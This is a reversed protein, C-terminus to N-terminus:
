LMHVLFMTETEFHLTPVAKLYKDIPLIIIEPTLHRFGQVENELLCVGKFVRMERINLRATSHVLEGRPLRPVAKHDQRTCTARLASFHDPELALKLLMTCCVDMIKMEIPITAETSHDTTHHQQGTLRSLTPVKGLSHQVIINVVLFRGTEKISVRSRKRITEPHNM